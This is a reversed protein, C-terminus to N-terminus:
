PILEQPVSLMVRPDIMDYRTYQEGFPSRSWKNTPFTEFAGM